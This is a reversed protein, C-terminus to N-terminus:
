SWSRSTKAVRTLSFTGAPGGCRQHDPRVEDGARRQGGRRGRAIRQGIGDRARQGDGLHRARDTDLVIGDSATTSVNNAADRYQAYVTRPGNGSALTWSKAATSYAEWASWAANDNSFRMQTVAVDDTASAVLSVLSSNTWAAGADVVVSGTPPSLRAAAGAITFTVSRTTERNGAADQSYWYVTHSVPGVPPAAVPISTGSTWAGSTSDLQWWTGSLGSGGTDSPTLTFTKPEPTPRGRSPTAPPPLRPSM